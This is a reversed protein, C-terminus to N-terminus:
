YSPPAPAMKQIVFRTGVFESIVATIILNNIAAKFVGIILPIRTQESIERMIEKIEEASLVIPATQIVGSRNVLINKGPGPCEVSIVAPDSIISTIKGLALQRPTQNNVPNMQIIPQSQPTNPPARAVQQPRVSSIPMNSQMPRMPLPMPKPQPRIQNPMQNQTNVQTTQRVVSPLNTASKISQVTQLTQIQSNQEPPLPKTATIEQIQNKEEIIQRTEAMNIPEIQLKPNERISQRIMNRIEETTKPNKLDKLTFSIKKKRTKIAELFFDRLFKQRLAYNNKM